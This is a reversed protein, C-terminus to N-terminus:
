AGISAAPVGNTGAAEIMEAAGEILDDEFVDALACACNPEGVLQAAAARTYIKDHRAIHSERSNVFSTIWLVYTRTETEKELDENRAIAATQGANSIETRAIRKARSHQVGVRDRLERAIQFPSIGKQAGDGLLYAMKAAEDATIGKLGNLTRAMLMAGVGQSQILFQPSAAVRRAGLAEAIYARQVANAVLPEIEDAADIVQQSLTRSAIAIKSINYEYVYSRKGRQVIKQSRSTVADPLVAEQYHRVIRAARVRGARLLLFAKKQERRSLAYFRAYRRRLWAEQAIKPKREPM